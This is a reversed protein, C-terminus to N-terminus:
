EVALFGHKALVRRGAASGAFAIFREADAQRRSDRVIAIPYRIPPHSDAPARAVVAVKGGAITVDSGYVIGAAVEGRVVYELVQRVDEAYILRPQLRDWLRLQELACRAYQGAPVTKPNGIGIREVAPGALDDFSRVSRKADAPVVLVLENRVLDRRSGSVLLGGAALADMQRTGASAFVDVPAGAEIQKQLVGSGAFNFRVIVGTATEFREGIEVFANKLSAAASVLIESGRAPGGARAPVVSVTLLVGVLYRWV